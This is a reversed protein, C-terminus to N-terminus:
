ETNLTEEIQMQGVVLHAGVTLVTKLNISIKLLNYIECFSM